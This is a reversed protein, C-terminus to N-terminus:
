LQNTWYGSRDYHKYLGVEQEHDLEELSEYPPSNKVAARSLDVTVMSEFWNVSAIWDPVILVKHGLWWHSTKVILYRIAWTKEDVLFGEVHGILGDTAQIEYNLVSKCSRLHPDDHKTSASDEFGAVSSEVRRSHVHGPETPQGHESRQLQQDEYAVESARDDIDSLMLSPFSGEGWLGTGAWYYPYGYYSLYRMEHQRSVPMDSDIDPSNKINERNLLVQLLKKKPDVLGISIPSILVKRNSLWGGAKVVVYRVVWSADDFFFDQVHGIPGDNAQVAYKELDEISRLM